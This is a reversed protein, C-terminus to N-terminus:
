TISNAKIVSKLLFGRYCIMKTLQSDTTEDIFLLQPQEKGPELELLARLPITARQNWSTKTSEASSLLQNEGFGQTIGAAGWCHQGQAPQM